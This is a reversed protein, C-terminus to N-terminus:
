KGAAIEKKIAIEDEERFRRNSCQDRWTAIKQQHPEVRDNISINRANIANIRENLANVRERQALQAANFRAADEGHLRSREVLKARESEHDSKEADTKVTTDKASLASVLANMTERESALRASRARLENNGSDVELQEAKVADQDRTFTQQEQLIDAAARENASKLTLCIRLEGITM